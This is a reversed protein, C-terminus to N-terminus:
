QKGNANIKKVDFRGSFADLDLDRYYKDLAKARNHASDYGKANNEKSTAPSSDTSNLIGAINELLEHKISAGCGNGSLVNIKEDVMPNVTNTGLLRGDDLM